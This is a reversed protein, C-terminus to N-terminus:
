QTVLPLSHCADDPGCGPNKLAPWQWERSFFFQHRYFSPSLRDHKPRGLSSTPSGRDAGVACANTGRHGSLEWGHGAGGAASRSAAKARWSVKGSPLGRAPVLRAALEPPLCRPLPQASASVRLVRAARAGSLRGCPSPGGGPGSGCPPSRAAAPVCCEPQRTAPGRRPAASGPGGRGLASIEGPASSRCGVSYGAVLFRNEAELGAPWDCFSERRNVPGM